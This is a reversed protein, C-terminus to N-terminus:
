SDTGGRGADGGGMRDSAPDAAPAPESDVSDTKEGPQETYEYFSRRRIGKVYGYDTKIKGNGTLIALSIKM